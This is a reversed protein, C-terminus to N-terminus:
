DGDKNKVEKTPLWQDKYFDQLERVTEVKAEYNRLKRVLDEVERIANHILEELEWVRKQFEILM